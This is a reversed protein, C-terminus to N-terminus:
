LWQVYSETYHFPGLHSAPGGVHSQNLCAQATKSWPESLKKLKRFYISAEALCIKSFRWETVEGECVHTCLPLASLDKACSWLKNPVKFSLCLSLLTSVFFHEM